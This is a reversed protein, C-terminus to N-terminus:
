DRKERDDAADRWAQRALRGVQWALAALAVVGAASAVLRITDADGQAAEAGAGSVLHGVLVHATVSPVAGLLGLAYHRAPSRGAALAYSVLGFNFPALRALLNLRLSREGALRDLGGLRDSGAVRRRIPERLVSRGLALMLLGGGLVAALAVALGHLPGYVAGATFGLVSVPFCGTALLAFAGTFLAAGRLGAGALGPGIAPWRLAALGAAAVLLVLVVIRLARAIVSVEGAQDLRM